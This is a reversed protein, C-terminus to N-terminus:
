ELAADDNNEFERNDVASEFGEKMGSFESPSKGDFLLDEYEYM